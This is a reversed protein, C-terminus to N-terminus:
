SIQYKVNIYKLVGLTIMLQALIYTTMTLARGYEVPIFFKNYALISDSTIFLLAGILVLAYGPGKRFIASIGMATIVMAYIFVPIEMNGLGPWLLFILLGTYIILISALAYQIPTGKREESFNQFIWVYLVQAILFSALGFVFMMDSDSQFMLFVDGCWSFFLALIMLSGSFTVKDKGRLFLFMLLPMLLPKSFVAIDPRNYLQAGIEALAVLLYLVLPLLGRKFKM